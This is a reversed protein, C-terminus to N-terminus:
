KWYNKKKRVSLGLSSRRVGLQRCPTLKSDDNSRVPVPTGSTVLQVFFILM